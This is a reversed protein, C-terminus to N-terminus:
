ENSSQATETPVNKPFILKNKISNIGNTLSEM